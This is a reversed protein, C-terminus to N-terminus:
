VLMKCLLQLFVHINHLLHHNILMRTVKKGRFVNDEQLDLAKVKCNPIGRKMSSKVMEEMDLFAKIFDKVDESM